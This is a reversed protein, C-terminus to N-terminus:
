AAVGEHIASLFAEGYKELRAAGVGKITAMESLDQPRREVMEMLTKDNFVVYPPVGQSASLEKRLGSLRAFLDIGCYAEAEAAFGQADEKATDQVNTVAALPADVLAALPTDALVALPADEVTAM